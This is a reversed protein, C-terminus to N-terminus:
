EVTNQEPTVHHDSEERPSDTEVEEFVGCTTGLETVPSVSHLERYLDVSNAM